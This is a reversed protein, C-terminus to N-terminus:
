RLSVRGLSEEVKLDKREIFRFMSPLPLEETHLFTSNKYCCDETTSTSLPPSFIDSMSSAKSTVTLDTKVFSHQSMASSGVIFQPSIVQYSQLSTVPSGNFHARPTLQIAEQTTQVPHTIFITRSVPAIARHLSSQVAPASFRANVPMLRPQISQQKLTLMPFAQGNESISIPVSMQNPIGIPYVDTKTIQSNHDKHRRSQRKSESHNSSARNASSTTIPKYGQLNPQIISNIGISAIGPNNTFVNITSIVASRSTNLHSIPPNPSSAHLDKFDKVVSQMEYQTKSSVNGSNGFPNKRLLDLDQLPRYINSTDDNDHKICEEDIDTKIFRSLENSFPQPSLPVEKRMFFQRPLNIGINFPNPGLLAMKAIKKTNETYENSEERFSLSRKGYFREREMNIREQLYQRTNQDRSWERKPQDSNERRAQEPSDPPTHPPSHKTTPTKSIAADAKAVSALNDLKPAFDERSVTNINSIEFHSNIQQMQTIQNLDVYQSSNNAQSLGVLISATEIDIDAESQDKMEKDTFYNSKASQLSKNQANKELHQYNSQNNSKERLLHEIKYMSPQHTNVDDNKNNPSKEKNDVAQQAFNAKMPLHLGNSFNLEAKDCDDLSHSHVFKNQTPSNPASYSYKDKILLKLKSNKMKSNTSNISSVQEPHNNSDRDIDMDEEQQMAYVM